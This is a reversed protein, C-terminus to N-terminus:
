LIQSEVTGPIIQTLARDLLDELASHDSDNFPEMRKIKMRNSITLNSIAKPGAVLAWILHGDQGFTLMKTYSFPDSLVSGLISNINVLRMAPFLQDAKQKLITLCINSNLKAVVSLLRMMALLISLNDEM